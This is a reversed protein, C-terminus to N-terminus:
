SGMIVRFLEKVITRCVKLEVLYPFNSVLGKIHWSPFNSSSLTALLSGWLKLMVMFFNVLEERLCSPM